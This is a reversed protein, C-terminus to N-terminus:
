KLWEALPRITTDPSLAGAKWALGEVIARLQVNNLDTFRVGVASQLTALVQQRLQAADSAAAAAAQDRAQIAAAIEEPTPDVPLAGHQALWQDAGMSQAIRAGSALYMVDQTGDNAAVVRPLGDRTVAEQIALGNILVRDPM